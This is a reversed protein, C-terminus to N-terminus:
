TWAAALLAAVFIVQLVVRPGLATAPRGGITLKERAAYINAPFMAVLLVALCVAAARSTSPILLGAAGLLELVGTISVLLGPNPFSPPVMRVLDARRKGWYASATVLFMAALAARLALNWSDFILARFILLCAVLVLFPIM